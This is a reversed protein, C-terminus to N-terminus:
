IKGIEFGAKEVNFEDEQKASISDLIQGLQFLALERQHINESYESFFEIFDQYDELKSPSQRKESYQDKMFNMGKWVMQDFIPFNESYNYSGETYSDTVHILFAPSIIAGSDNSLLGQSIMWNRTEKLIESANKDKLEEFKDPFEDLDAEYGILDGDDNKEVIQVGRNLGKWAWLKQLTNKYSTAEDARELYEERADNGKSNVTQISMLNLLNSRNLVIKEGM